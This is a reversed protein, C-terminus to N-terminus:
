FNNNIEQSLNIDIQSVMEHRQSIDPNYFESQLIQKEKDNEEKNNEENEKNIDNSIEEKEKKEKIGASSQKSIMSNNNGETTLNLNLSQFYNKIRKGGNDSIKLTNKQIDAVIKKCISVLFCIFLLALIIILLYVFVSGKISNLWQSEITSSNNFTINHSFEM